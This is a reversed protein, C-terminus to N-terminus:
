EHGKVKAKMQMAFSSETREDEMYKSVMNQEVDHAMILSSNLAAGFKQELARFMLESGDLLSEHIWAVQYKETEKKFEASHQKNNEWYQRAFAARVKYPIYTSRSAALNQEKSAVFDRYALAFDAKSSAPIVRYPSKFTRPDRGCIWGDVLIKDADRAVAEVEAHTVQESMMRAQNAEKKLLADNAAKQAQGDKTSLDGAGDQVSCSSLACVVVLWLVCLKVM